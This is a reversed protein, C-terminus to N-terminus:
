QSSIPPNAGVGGFIKELVGREIMIRPTKEKSYNLDNHDDLNYNVLEIIKNNENFKFILINREIIEQKFFYKIKKQETYYYYKKEVPDIYNPKGINEIVEDINKLENYNINNQNLIM